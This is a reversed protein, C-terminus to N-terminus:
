NLLGLCICLLFILWIPCTDLSCYQGYVSCLNHTLVEARPTLCWLKWWPSFHTESSSIHVNTTFSLSLSLDLPGWLTQGQVVGEGGYIGAKSREELFALVQGTFVMRAKTQSPIWVCLLLCSGTKSGFCYCVQKESGQSMVLWKGGSSRTTSETMDQTYLKFGLQRLFCKQWIYKWRM